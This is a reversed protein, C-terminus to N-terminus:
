LINVKLESFYLKKDEDYHISNLSFKFINDYKKTLGELLQTIKKDKSSVLHFTFKKKEDNQNYQIQQIKVLYRNLDNTLQAILKAKMPYNVKVDHIKILTNKKSTYNNKEEKLLSLAKEKDAKRSKITAQRTSKKAHVESYSSQLIKYQLDQSYTLVWYAIPYSFAVFLSVAVLIALKGSQRHKFKPPRNFTSFNCSYKEDDQLTTTIHMLAHIQNIFHETKDFGYEFDFDSSATSLEMEAIEYLKSKINIESGIYIHEVKEINFAKKTYALIDNINAFIEKYLKLIFEKYESTTDRLNQSSLFEIFEDYEIREGHLECFREHMEILSYRLSKTYVFEKENYISLFADNEEFYIFCHISNEEIIQKSYLSKILLPAPTIVDIYKIQDLTTQYTEIIQLPDVIFVQFHRNESDANNFSEIYQVQYEIAQDLGLEDYIKINIADLIDEEPINKSIEIHNNIYGKTNLYSVLFQEKSYEASTTPSLFSSISQIYENTYPNVSVVSTFSNKSDTSM